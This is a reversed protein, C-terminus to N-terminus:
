ANASVEARAPVIDRHDGTVASRFPVDSAAPDLAAYLRARAAHDSNVFERAYRLRKGVSWGTFELAVVLANVNGTSAIALLRASRERDEAQRIRDPHQPILVQTLEPLPRM